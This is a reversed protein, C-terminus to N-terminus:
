WAQQPDLQQTGITLGINSSLARGSGSSMLVAGVAIEQLKSEPKIYERM